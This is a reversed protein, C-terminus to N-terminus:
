SFNLVNQGVVNGKAVREFVKKVENLNYEKDLVPQIKGNSILTALDELIQHEPQGFPTRDASKRKMRHFLNKLFGYDEAPTKPM